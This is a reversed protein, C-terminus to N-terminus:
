GNRGFKGKLRLYETYEPDLKIKYAEWETPFAGTMGYCYFKVQAELDSAGGDNHFGGYGADQRRNEAEKLILEMVKDLMERSM